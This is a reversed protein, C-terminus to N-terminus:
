FFKNQWNDSSFDTKTLLGYILGVTSFTGASVILIPIKVIVSKLVNPYNMWGALGAWMAMSLGFILSSVIMSKYDRMPYRVIPVYWPLKDGWQSLLKFSGDKKQVFLLPSAYVNKLLFFSSPALIFFNLESESYKHEFAKICAIVEYPIEGCYLHSSLFRLRHKICLSKIQDEKFVTNVPPEQYKANVGSAIVSNHGFFRLVETERRENFSLIHNVEEFLSDFESPAFDQNEDNAM